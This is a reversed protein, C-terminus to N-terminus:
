SLGSSRAWHYHHQYIVLNYEFPERNQDDPQSNHKKIQCQFNRAESQYQYSILNRGTTTANM